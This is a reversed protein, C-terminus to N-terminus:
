GGNGGPPGETGGPVGASVVIRGYMGRHEHNGVPCRFEYEGPQDFVLSTAWTSGQPLPVHVRGQPTTMEFAHGASPDGNTLVLRVPQGVELNITTDSWRLYPVANLELTPLDPAFEAAQAEIEEPAGRTIEADEWMVHLFGGPTPLNAEPMVVVHIERVPQDTCDYCAYRFGNADDHVDSSLMVHLLASSAVKQGNKWADAWGWSCMACNVLPEAPHGRMTQGHETIDIAVGGYWPDMVPNSSFPALALQVIEWENGEEDTFSAAFEMFDDSLKTDNETRDVAAFRVEGRPLEAINHSFM